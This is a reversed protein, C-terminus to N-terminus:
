VRNGYSNYPSSFLVTSAMTVCWLSIHANIRGVLREALNQDKLPIHIYNIICLLYYHLLSLKFLQVVLNYM